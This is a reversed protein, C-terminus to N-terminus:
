CKFVKAFILGVIYPTPKKAGREWDEITRQPISLKKAFEQQSIRLNRRVAKLIGVIGPEITIIVNGEVTYLYASAQDEKVFMKGAFKFKNEISIYQYKLLRIAM